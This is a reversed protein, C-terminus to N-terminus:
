KMLSIFQNKTTAHLETIVSNKEGKEGASRASWSAPITREAEQM